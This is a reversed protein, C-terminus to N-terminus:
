VGGMVQAFPVALAWGIRGFEISWINTVPDRLPGIFAVGM